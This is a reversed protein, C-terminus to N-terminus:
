GTFGREEQSSIHCEHHVLRTNTATYLGMAEIRDLEGYRGEAELAKNCLACLGQQERFKQRQLARHKMPTGKEDYQLARAIKRNYAFRLDTDGVSLEDINRRITTLLAKAKEREDPTLKRTPM